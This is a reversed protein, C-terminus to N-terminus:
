GRRQARRAAAAERMIVRRVDKTTETARRSGKGRGRRREADDLFERAWKSWQHYAEEVIIGAKLTVAVGTRRADDPLTSVLDFLKRYHALREAHASEDEILRTRAVTPDIRGYSFARLFAGDKVMRPPAPTAAWELLERRGKATLSYVTKNPRGTQRVLRGSVLKEARLKDLERYIQPHTAHWVFGVSGDFYQVLDYGSLDEDALLTLLAQGLAM